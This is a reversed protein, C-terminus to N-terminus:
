PQTKSQEQQPTTTMMDLRFMTMWIAGIALVAVLALAFATMSMGGKEKAKKPQRYQPQRPDPSPNFSVAGAPNAINVPDIPDVPDLQPDRPIPNPPEIVPSAMRGVDTDSTPRSNDPDNDLHPKM